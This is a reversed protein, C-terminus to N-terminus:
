DIVVLTNWIDAEVDECAVSAIWATLKRRRKRPAWRGRSRGHFCPADTPGINGACLSLRLDIPSLYRRAGIMSYIPRRIILLTKINRRWLIRNPLFRCVDMCVSPRGVAMTAEVAAPPRREDRSRHRGVCNKASNEGLVEFNISEVVEVAPGCTFGSIVWCWCGLPLDQLAENNKNFFKSLAWRTGAPSM